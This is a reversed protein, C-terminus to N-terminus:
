IPRKITLTNESIEKQKELIDEYIVNIRDQLYEIHDLEAPSINKTLSLIASLYDMM